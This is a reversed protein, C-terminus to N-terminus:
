HIKKIHHLMSNLILLFFVMSLYIKKSDAESFNAVHSLSSSDHNKNIFRPFTSFFIRQSTGCSSSMVWIANQLYVVNKMWKLKLRRQERRMWKQFTRELWNTQDYKWICRERETRYVHCWYWVIITSIEFIWKVDVSGICFWVCFFSLSFIKVTKRHTWACSNRRDYHFTGVNIRTVLTLTSRFRM